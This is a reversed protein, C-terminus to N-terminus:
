AREGIQDPHHLITEGMIRAGSNDEQALRRGEVKSRGPSDAADNTGWTAGDRRPHMAEIMAFNAADVLYHLNGTERYKAMRARVDAVADFKVPYADAVRGYKHYSVMMAAAMKVVFEPDFETLPVGAAEIYERTAAIMKARANM